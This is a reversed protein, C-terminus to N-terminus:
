KTLNNNYWKLIQNNIHSMYTYCCLLFVSFFFMNFPIFVEM